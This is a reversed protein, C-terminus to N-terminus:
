DKCRGSADMKIPAMYRNKDKIFKAIGLIRVINIFMNLQETTGEDMNLFNSAVSYLIWIILYVMLFCILLPGYKSSISPSARSLLKITNRSAVGAPQNWDLIKEDTKKGREYINKERWARDEDDYTIREEEAMEQFFTSTPGGGHVGFWSNYKYKKGNGKQNSIYLKIANGLESDILKGFIKKNQKISNYINKESPNEALTYISNVNISKLDSDSINQVKNFTLKIINGINEDNFLTYIACEYCYTLLDSVIKKSATLFSFIGGGNQNYFGGRQTSTLTKHLNEKIKTLKNADSKPMKKNTDLLSIFSNSLNKGLEIENHIDDLAGTKFVNDIMSIVKNNIPKNNVNIIQNILSVSKNYKKVIKTKSDLLNKHIKDIWTSIKPDLVKNMYKGKYNDKNDLIDRLKNRLNLLIKEDIVYLKNKVLKSWGNIIKIKFLARKMKKKWSPTEKNKDGGLQKNNLVQVYKKIINKGIKGNIKVKRGTQPNFIQDYLNM